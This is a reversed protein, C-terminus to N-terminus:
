RGVKKKLKKFLWTTKERYFVINILIVIVLAMLAVQIALIAWGAYSVAKMKMLTGIGIIAGATVADTLFQKIVNKLPWRILNQSNYKALWLTQYAMAVLTGAAVGVLGWYYM